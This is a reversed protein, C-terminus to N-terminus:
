HAARGALELLSLTLASVDGRITPERDPAFKSSHLGPTDRGEAKAKAFEGPEVTGVRMQISPVSAATGFVGFDESGSSPEAATVSRAGLGRKLAELRASLAPDNVVVESVQKPDIVVLPEKPPARL